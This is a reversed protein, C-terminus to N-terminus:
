RIGSDYTIALQTFRGPLVTFDQDSAVPMVAPSEPHLIYDGPALLVRFKGDADTQFKAVKRGTNNLVTITAEYPKDPCPDGVHVVPCTPGIFVQGEIGSDASSTSSGCAASLIVLLVLCITKKM